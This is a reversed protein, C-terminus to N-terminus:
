VFSKGEILPFDKTIMDARVQTVRPFRPRARARAEAGM